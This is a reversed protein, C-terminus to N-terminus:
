EVRPPVIGFRKLLRYLQTRHLGLTRAAAAVNGSEDHLAKEISERSLKIPEHDPDTRRDDVGMGASPDLHAAALSAEGASIATHAAARAHQLLERVNGSWARTLCAEVFSAHLALAPSVRAVSRLLMWPIEERRDRLPPLHVHPQGIRHYLDERFTGAAVAARLDRHTAFCFRVDIKKSQTSGLPTVERTELFRLLKAQVDLELEGIEDLFLVGGHAAAVYGEANEAGSYAGKKAGFLLREAVGEPITACNVTVLPGKASGRAHFTRAAHEKGSGTEGTVLLNEDASAIQAIRMHVRRSIPGIVLEDEIVVQEGMFLRIDERPLMLTRGVRIVRPAELSVTGEVRDGDVNTGNRSGLDRIIWKRGDWGIEAHRRSLREDDPLGGEERGVVLKGHKLSLARLVPATGSFVVILGPVARERPGRVSGSDDVTDAVTV